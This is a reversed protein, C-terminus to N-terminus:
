KTYIEPKIKGFKRIMVGAEANAENEILSGDSGDEEINKLEGRVNQRHHTLEHGISRLIDVLARGLSYIHVEHNVTDYYATTKINERSTRLVVTCPEDVGLYDNAFVVFEDVIPKYDYLEINERLLQKIEKM